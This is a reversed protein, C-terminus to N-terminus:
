QLRLSQEWLLTGCSRFVWCTSGIIIENDSFYLLLIVLLFLESTPNFQDFTTYGSQEEGQVYAEFLTGNSNPCNYTSLPKAQKNPLLGQSKAAQTFIGLTLIAGYSTLM